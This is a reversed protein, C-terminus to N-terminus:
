PNSIADAIRKLSIAISTLMADERDQMELHRKVTENPELAAVLAHFRHKQEPTM